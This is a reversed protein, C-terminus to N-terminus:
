ESYHAETHDLSNGFPSQLVGVNTIRVTRVRGSPLRNDIEDGEIVDADVPLAYMTLLDMAMAETRTEVGHETRRIVVPINFNIAM